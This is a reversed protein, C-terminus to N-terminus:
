GYTLQSCPLIAVFVEVPLIEGTEHDIISLKDGAYDIFMKDGAKHELRAMPHSLALYAQCILVSDVAPMDMLILVNTNGFFNSVPLEKKRLDNLM